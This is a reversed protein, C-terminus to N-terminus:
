SLRPPHFISSTRYIPRMHNADRDFNPPVSPENPTFGLQETMEKVQSTVTTVPAFPPFNQKPSSSCNPGKCPGKLPIQKHSESSPRESDRNINASDSVSVHNFFIIYDGCEASARSPAFFAGLVFLIFTRWYRGIITLSSVMMLNTCTHNSSLLRDIPHSSLLQFNFFFFDSRRLRRM